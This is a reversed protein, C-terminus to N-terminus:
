IIYVHPTRPKQLKSKVYKNATSRDPQEDSQFPSDSSTGYRSKSLNYYRHRQPPDLERDKERTWRDKLISSFRRAPKQQEDYKPVRRNQNVVNEGRVGAKTSDWKKKDDDDDGFLDDSPVSPISDSETDDKTEVREEEKQTHKRSYIGRFLSKYGSTKTKSRPDLELEDDTEEEDEPWEMSSPVTLSPAKNKPRKKSYEPFDPDLDDSSAVLFSAESEQTKSTDLSILESEDDSTIEISYKIDLTKLIKNFIEISNFPEVEVNSLMSPGFAIYIGRMSRPSM